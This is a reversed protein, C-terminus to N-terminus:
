ENQWTNNELDVDAMRRTPDIEISEIADIGVPLEFTYTPHTWPWDELVQFEMDEFEQEKTGRMIRLPINFLEKEGDEHTVVVDLPMPMVGNKALTIQTTRRDVSQVSDIGYDIVHTSQVWYEKYWDLELGSEKEAVRIFDNANPHKFKWTDFYRLMTSNFDEEGIIYKLQELFVQGKTYSAVGYAQNRMFHDAHTIMPEEFGSLAFRAYGRISGTHPFETYEGPFIGERRLHNITETTAYSTFGEDMWPYLSENTGLVMQYWSHMLEHISVGVLSPFSREGTILTGMPYEMGGDGGQIFSYQEYPYQGFTQNIFEFAADMVEPLRSWPEETEENKQYLFHMVMGDKRTRTVHTYDPDTAWMFDHVDPAVFHWSLKEGEPRNVETGEKEYGYGIEEPNQLYGSGGVIYNQDIHITVDFDGWIGYFERGVYPNAHWGQYDYEAMKPYWQVMSYDIGEANNRGTRRIQVPVQAEFDMEFVTREGPLIPEALDVELITGVVEYSVKQGDQTLANIKQYGIEDEELNAIRSGVRRDPDTITRSRVDMMSNPQFANFYLHYFVENLTDPSNNFYVLQQEGNFRHTEVDFDIDMTYEARQQWRDPQAQLSFSCLLLFAALIKTYTM